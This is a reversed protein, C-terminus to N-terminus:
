PTRGAFAAAAFAQIQRLPIGTREAASRCDEFEPAANVVEGDLRAVKVRIPGVPTEVTFTERDLVRRSAERHRLGITTTERFVLRVMRELDATEALLTVEVGPRNKKMQVPTLYVDLAGEALARETFHGLAEPTMDDIAAEVVAVRDAGRHAAASDGLFLRLVNPHMPVDRAGAGYGIRDVVLEPLPGYSDAVTTIIAAGTPTLLEKRVAGSYIPVGRVLEATAPGPVPYAGHSFTVAGSGVNLPSSVFREVGLAEFAACAAAVDVVADVAGVEHFHVEDPTSGHARGEAEGLRAFIRSALAKTRDTLGSRAILELIEPLSRSTGADHAHDHDQDHDHHHPHEHVHGHPGEVLGGVVVDVKTAALAAREVRAIELRVDGLGLRDVADALVAPDLGLDVLAGLVMDGSAGSFCDFYLTRM